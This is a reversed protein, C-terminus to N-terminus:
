QLVAKAEELKNVFAVISEDKMHSTNMLIKTSSSSVLLGKKATLRYMALFGIGFAFSLVTITGSDHGGRSGIIFGFVVAILGLILYLPNSERKYECSSVHQLMISKMHLKGWQKDQQRIRHTTLVISKDDSELLPLENQMYKM